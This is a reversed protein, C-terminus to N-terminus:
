DPGFAFRESHIHRPPVGAAEFQTRLADMMAPPGVILIDIDELPGSNERCLDVTM